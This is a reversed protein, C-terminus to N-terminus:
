EGKMLGREIAENQMFVITKYLTSDEFMDNLCDLDDFSHCRNRAICYAAEAKNNLMRLCNMLHSDTMDKIDIKTGDKTTWLM